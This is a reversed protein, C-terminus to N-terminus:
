DHSGSIAIQRSVPQRPFCPSDMIKKIIYFYFLSPTFRGEGGIYGRRYTARTESSSFCKNYVKGLLHLDTKLAEIFQGERTHWNRTNNINTLDLEDTDFPEGNVSIKM